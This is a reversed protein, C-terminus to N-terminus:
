IVGAIVKHASSAADRRPELALVAFLDRLRRQDLFERSMESIILEIGARHRRALAFATEEDLLGSSRALALLRPQPADAPVHAPLAARSALRAEFEDACADLDKAEDLGIVDHVNESRDTAALIEAASEILRDGDRAVLAIRGDSSELLAIAHELGLEAHLARGLVPTHAHAAEQAEAKLVRRRTRNKAAVTGVVGSRDGTRDPLFYIARVSSRRQGIRHARGNRQDLKVPNWPVDYHVVVGAQQLNLGESSLDTSILVDIRGNRFADLVAAANPKQARPMASRRSTVLGCRRIAGLAAFLDRATAAAGTFILIPEITETCLKVIQARKAGASGAVADHLSRLKGIEERIEGASEAGGAPLPWFDWFLVQQADRSEEGRGFADRWDRKTLMRGSAAADLARDYFRIQREISERLAAESSELRRWLFRRLLDDHAGGGILPFRLSAIMRDVSSGVPPLAHRVVIRELDGFRLAAPLVTRDRRIVLEAVVTRLAALDRERFARDLSLAGRSSLADDAAILTVLAYLDDVSNCVPTATVLLLRAGASRRALAMWRRTAPNRFRHAEDVVLLRHDGGAAIRPDRALSDHTLIRAEVAFLALTERWQAVLALPVILEVDFGRRAQVQAVAAAVYSKGLGVDDALIAGGRRELLDLVRGAAEKQHGALRPHLWPRPVTHAAMAEVFAAITASEHRAKPDRVASARASM